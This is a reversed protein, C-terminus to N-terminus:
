ASDINGGLFNRYSRKRDEDWGSLYAETSQINRHGVQDRVQDIPIGFQLAHLIHSHRLAHVKRHPIGAEELRRHFMQNLGYITLPRGTLRCVKRHNDFHLAPFVWPANYGEGRLWRRWDALEARVTQCFYVLRGNGSKAVLAQITVTYEDLDLETWRLTCVEGSRMGTVYLLHLLALDRRADLAPLRGALYAFLTNVEKHSFAVPGKRPARPALRLRKITRAPNDDIAGTEELYNLFARAHGWYSAATTESARDRVAELWDLIGGVTPPWHDAGAHAVYSDLAVRYNELTKARWHLRKAAMFRVQHEKLM